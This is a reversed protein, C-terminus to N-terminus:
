SLVTKDHADEQLTALIDRLKELGIIAEHITKGKAELHIQHVVFGEPLHHVIDLCLMPIEGNYEKTEEERAMM